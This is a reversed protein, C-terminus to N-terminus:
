PSRLVPQHRHGHAAIRDMEDATLEFDFVDLNERMREPRVSKPIVIVDRQILWRLVVQGVSKGHAEGIATLTPDTFMNNRGEAFPGWSEHSCGTSVGHGPPRRRAPLVRPNRDPQGGPHDRQARDPRGAPRSLLEVRRHCPRPGASCDGGDGALRRLLRRVAPPHSLPRRLGPRAPGAVEPVGGQDGRLRRAGDVVEHDRVTRRTAIGSRAMARGVAEENQYSAATDIHRYGTDLAQAVVKETDDAPVQYVGFGLIPMEVGNNLTVTQMSIGEHRGDASTCGCRSRTTTSAPPPTLNNLTSSRRLASNSPTPRSTRRWGPSASPVRSRRSTTARAGAALGVGSACADRRGRCRRGAVEDAIRLNRQFNEGTFRPNTKRFDADDDFQETLPDHRDPLRAGAPLVARLRHGARAAAAASRTGLDRTWLSYESQLATIPHVAHARRITDAGAESLGIHRVKGERSWSPSRASPTRSRRTRTSATSTTCTSTTPASGDCRDRSPPASTPRAATSTGPGGGAHSVLGFKTALVVEDRRGKLARGVLEENIYPGYIEATDIFTVGLDLARHITRISEADDTGAGTYGHSMGMAGLGIRSVTLDGLKIYKM